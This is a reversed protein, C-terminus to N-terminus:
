IFKLEDIKFKLLRKWPLIKRPTPSKIFLGTFPPLSPTLKLKLKAMNPSPIPSLSHSIPTTYHLNLLSTHHYTFYYNKWKKWNDINILKVTMINILYWGVQSPFYYYYHYYYEFFLSVFVYSGCLVSVYSGCLSIVGVYYFVKWKICHCLEWMVCHCLERMDVIYSGCIPIGKGYCM